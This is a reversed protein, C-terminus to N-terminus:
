MEIDMKDEANQIAKRENEDYAYTNRRHKLTKIHKRYDLYNSNCAMCVFSKNENFDCMSDSVFMIYRPLSM